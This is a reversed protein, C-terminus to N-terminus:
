IIYPSVALILLCVNLTVKLKTLHNKFIHMIDAHTAKQGPIKIGNTVCAAVDIMDKFKLHELAQIPQDMAILWEIAATKFLKDSYPVVWEVLKRKTLHSNIAQQAHVAKEKHDKIDGPLMSEFSNTKAWTQYKGQ